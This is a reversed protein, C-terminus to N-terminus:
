VDIFSGTVTHALGPASACRKRHCRRLSVTPYESGMPKSNKPRSSHKAEQFKMDYGVLPDPSKIASNEHSPKRRRKRAGDQHEMGESIRTGLESHRATTIDQLSSRDPKNISQSHGKTSSKTSSAVRPASSEAPYEPPIPACAQSLLQDTLNRWVGLCLALDAAIEEELYQQFEEFQQAEIQPDTALKFSRIHRWAADRTDSIKTAREDRPQELIRLTKEREDMASTEEAPETDEESSVLSISCRLSRRCEDLLSLHAGSDPLSLRPLSFTSGPSLSSLEGMEDAKLVAKEGNLSIKRSRWKSLHRKSWLCCFFARIGGAIRRSSSVPRAGDPESPDNWDQITVHPIDM